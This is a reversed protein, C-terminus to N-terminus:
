RQGSFQKSHGSISNEKKHFYIEEHVAPIKTYKFLGELRMTLQSEQTRMFIRHFDATRILLNLLTIFGHHEFNNALYKM